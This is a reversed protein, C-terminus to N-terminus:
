SVSRQVAARLLEQNSPLEAGHGQALSLLAIGRYLDEGRVRLQALFRGLEGAFAAPPLQREIGFVKLLTAAGAWDDFGALHELLARAALAREDLEGGPLKRLFALTIRMAAAHPIGRGAAFGLLSTAHRTAAGEGDRGDPV